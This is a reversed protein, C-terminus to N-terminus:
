LARSGIRALGAKAEDRIDRRSKGAARGGAEVTEHAGGALRM